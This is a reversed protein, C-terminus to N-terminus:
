CFIIQDPKWLVNQQWSLWLQMLTSYYFCTLAFCPKNEGSIATFNSFIFIFVVFATKHKTFLFLSFFCKIKLALLELLRQGGCVIVLQQWWRRWGGVRCGMFEARQSSNRARGDRCSVGRRLPEATGEQLNWALADSVRPEVHLFYTLAYRVEKLWGSSSWLILLRRDVPILASQM